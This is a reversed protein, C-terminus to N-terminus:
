KEMYITKAVNRIRWIDVLNNEVIIDYQSNKCLRGGFCYLSTDFIMNFDGGLIIHPNTESINEQLLNKANTFFDVQEKSSKLSYINCLYSKVDQIIAELLIFRGNIDCRLQKL